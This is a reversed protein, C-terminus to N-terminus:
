IHKRKRNPIKNIKNLAKHVDDMYEHPCRDRDGKGFNCNYCMVQYKPDIPEKRLKKYLGGGVKKTNNRERTGGGNVHDLSLFMINDEKCCICIGGYKQIVENKIRIRYGWEEKYCSECTVGNERKPEKGCHTCIKFNKREKYEIKIKTREKSTLRRKRTLERRYNLCSQCSKKGLVPKGGCNNCLGNKSWLIKYARSKSVGKEQQLLLVEKVM